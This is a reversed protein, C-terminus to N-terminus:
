KFAKILEDSMKLFNWEKNKASPRVVENPLEIRYNLDGFLFMM